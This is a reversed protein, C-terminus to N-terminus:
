DKLEMWELDKASAKDGTFTAILEVERLGAPNVLIEHENRGSFMGLVFEPSVISRWLEAHGTRWVNRKAFFEGVDQSTTWSMGLAAGPAGGRWVEIPESPPDQGPTDTLFQDAYEFMEIWDEADWGIAHAYGGHTWWRSLLQALHDSSLQGTAYWSCILPLRNYHSLHGMQDIFDPHFELGDLKDAREAEWLTTEDTGM